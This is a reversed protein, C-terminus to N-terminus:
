QVTELAKIFGDLVESVSDRSAQGSTYEALANLVEQVKELKQSNEQEAKKSSVIFKAEGGAIYHNIASRCGDCMEAEVQQFALVINQFVGMENMELLTDLRRQYESMNRLQEILREACESKDLDKGLSQLYEMIEKSSSLRRARAREAEQERQMRHQEKDKHASILMRAFGVALAGASLIFLAWAIRMYIVWTKYHQHIIIPDREIYTFILFAVSICVALIRRIPLKAEVQM